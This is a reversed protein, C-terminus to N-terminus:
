GALSKRNRMPVQSVLGVELHLSLTPPLMSIHLLSNKKKLKCIAM